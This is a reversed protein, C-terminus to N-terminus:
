ISLTALADPLAVGDEQQALWEGCGANWAEEGWLEFRHGQGILVAKKDLSAFGRLPPPILVRGQADFEVETAHGVLLRQLARTRPDFSPLRILKRELEEWEPLPYILLCPDRDVTIILRGECASLLDERYKAPIALRGKTDLNLNSVGRFM